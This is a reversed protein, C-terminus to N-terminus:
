KLNTEFFNLDNKVVTNWVGSMNHDASTYVKYVVQKDFKTLQAVLQDSWSKLVADDETGQHILLPAQIRDLYQWYSYQDVDYLSEFLSLKKRLAKGFDPAEDTYYLISYPFPKSVPAWLTTPYPKQTITLITLAIHGGNSHGWLGIKTSDIFWVKSLLSLLDLVTTYTQFREEFVDQSPNDSGGYGLFDPALSVFGNSAYMEASRKTGIGPAYKSPEVYGRMQMIVPYPGQKTLPIHALGNVRKGETYFHFRYVTYSSETAVPEDLTFSEGKPLRQQLQDITYKMLPRPAVNEKSIPSILPTQKNVLLFGAIGLLVGLISGLIYKM